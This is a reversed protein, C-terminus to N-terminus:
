DNKGEEKLPCNAPRKNACIYYIMDDNLVRCYAQRIDGWYTEEVDCCPCDLCNTDIDLELILKKMNKKM